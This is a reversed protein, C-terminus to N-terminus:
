LVLRLILPGVVRPPRVRSLPDPALVEAAVLAAGSAASGVYYAALGLGLPMTVIAVASAVAALAAALVLLRWVRRDVSTESKRVAVAARVAAFILAVMPVGFVFPALHIGLFPVLLPTVVM